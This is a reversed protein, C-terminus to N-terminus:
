LRCLTVIILPKPNYDELYCNWLEDIENTMIKEEFGFLGGHEAGSSYNPLLNRHIWRM